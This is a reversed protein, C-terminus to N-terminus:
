TYSHIQSHIADYQRMLVLESLSLHGNKCLEIFKFISLISLKCACISVFHSSVLESLLFFPMFLHNTISFHQTYVYKSGFKHESKIKNTMREKM